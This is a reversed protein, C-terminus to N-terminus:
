RIFRQVTGIRSLAEAELFRWWVASSPRETIMEDWLQLLDFVDAVRRQEYVTFEGCLAIEVGDAGGEVVNGIM